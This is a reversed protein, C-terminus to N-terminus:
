TRSGQTNAGTGTKSTALNDPTVTVGGAMLLKIQDEFPINNPAYVPSTTTPDYWDGTTLQNLGAYPDRTTSSGRPLFQETLDISSDDCKRRFLFIFLLAIGGLVLYMNKM